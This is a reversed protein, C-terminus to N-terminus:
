HVLQLSEHEAFDAFDKINFTALPLERVVCCAAIWSDNTPRPRDRLQAYAQIESSTVRSPTLRPRSPRVGEVLQPQQSRGQSSRLM